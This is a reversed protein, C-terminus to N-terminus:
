NKMPSWLAGHISNMPVGYFEMFDMNQEYAGHPEM